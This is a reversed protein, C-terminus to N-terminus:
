FCNLKKELFIIKMVKFYCPPTLHRNIKQTYPKLSDEPHCRM